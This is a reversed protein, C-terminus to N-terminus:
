VIWLGIDKFYFEVERGRVSTTAPFSSNLVKFTNMDLSSSLTDLIKVDIAPANGTNQFRVTYILKEGKLTYNEGKVGPPSVIKDNPDYSCM